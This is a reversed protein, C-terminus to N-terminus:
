PIKVDLTVGTFAGEGDGQVEAIYGTRYSASQVGYGRLDLSARGEMASGYVRPISVIRGFDFISLGAAKLVDRVQSLQLAMQVQALRTQALNVVDVKESFAQLGITYEGLGQVKLEIEQGNPQGADYTSIEGKPGGINRPGDIKMTIYDSSPARANQNAFIVLGDALGTIEVIQARLANAFAYVASGDDTVIPM